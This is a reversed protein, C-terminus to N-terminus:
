ELMRNERFRQIEEDIYIMALQANGTVDKGTVWRKTWTEALWGLLSNSNKRVDQAAINFASKKKKRTLEYLFNSRTYSERGKM